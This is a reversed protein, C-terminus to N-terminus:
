VLGGGDRRLRLCAFSGLVVQSPDLGSLMHVFDSRLEASDLNVGFM